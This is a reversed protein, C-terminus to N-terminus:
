RIRSLANSLVNPAVRRTIRWIRVTSYATSPESAVVAPSTKAM